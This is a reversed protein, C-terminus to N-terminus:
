DALTCSGDSILLDHGGAGRRRSVHTLRRGPDARKHVDETTCLTAAYCVLKFGIPQRFSESIM